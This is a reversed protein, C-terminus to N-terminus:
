CSTRRTCLFRLTRGRALLAPQMAGENLWDRGPFSVCTGEFLGSALASQVISDVISRQSSGEMVRKSAQGQHLCRSEEVRRVGGMLTRLHVERIGALIWYLLGCLVQAAQACEGADRSSYSLPMLMLGNSLKGFLGTSCM